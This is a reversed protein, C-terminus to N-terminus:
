SSRAVVVVRYYLEPDGNLDCRTIEIVNGIKFNYYKCVPDVNQLEPLQRTYNTIFYKKLFAAQEEQSLARHQPIYEVLPFQLEDLLFCQNGPKAHLLETRAFSTLPADAVLILRLNGYWKLLLRVYAVDIKCPLVHFLVLTDNEKNGAHALALTNLLVQADTKQAASRKGKRRSCASGFRQALSAYLIRFEDFPLPSDPSETSPFYKNPVYELGGRDRMMALAQYRAHYVRRLM